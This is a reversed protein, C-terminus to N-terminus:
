SVSTTTFNSSTSKVSSLQASFCCRRTRTGGTSRISPTVGAAGRHACGQKPIAILATARRLSPVRPVKWSTMQRSFRAPRPARRGPRQQHRRMQRLTVALPSLAAGGGGQLVVAGELCWLKRRGHQGLLLAAISFPKRYYHVKEDQMHGGHRCSAGWRHPCARPPAVM